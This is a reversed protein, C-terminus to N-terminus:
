ICAPLQPLARNVLNQEKVTADDLDVGNRFTVTLHFSGDSGSSSSMYMMGEVGNVNQEIPVSIAEAVTKADAGPYTAKVQVTPPSINPYQAIPLTRVTVLGVLIM